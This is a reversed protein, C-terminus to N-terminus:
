LKIAEEYLEFIKPILNNHIRKMLVNVDLDCTSLEENEDFAHSTMTLKDEKFSIKNLYRHKSTNVIKKLLIFDEDKEFDRMKNILNDSNSINKLAHYFNNHWGCDFDTLINGDKKKWNAITSSKLAFPFQDCIIHINQLFAIINAECKYKDSFGDDDRNFQWVLSEAWSTINSTAIFQNWHYHAYTQARVLSALVLDLKKKHIESSAVKSRLPSLDLVRQEDTM